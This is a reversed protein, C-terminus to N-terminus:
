GALTRLTLSMTWGGSEALGVLRELSRTPSSLGSSHGCSHAVRDRLDLVTLLDGVACHKADQVEAM